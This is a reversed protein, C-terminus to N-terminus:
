EILDFSDKKKKLKQLSDLTKYFKQVIVQNVQQKNM